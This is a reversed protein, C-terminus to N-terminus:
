LRQIYGDLPKKIPGGPRSGHSLTRSFPLKGPQEVPDVPPVEGTLSVTRHGAEPVMKRLCFGHFRIPKMAKANEISFFHYYKALPWTCWVFFGSDM